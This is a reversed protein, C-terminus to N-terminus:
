SGDPVTVTTSASNPVVEGDLCYPARVTIRYTGPGPVEVRYGDGDPGGWTEDYATLPAGPRCDMAGGDSGGVEEGDVEIATYAPGAFDIYDHTDPSSWLSARGHVRYTLRVHDAGAAEATLDVTLGAPNTPAGTSAGEATEDGLQLLGAGGAVVAVVAVAIGAGTRRANTDM